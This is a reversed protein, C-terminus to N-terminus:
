FRLLCKIESQLDAIIKDKDEIISKNDEKLDSIIKDKKEVVSKTHEKLDDIIRDKKKILGVHYPNTKIDAMKKSQKLTQEYLDNIVEYLQYKQSERNNSLYYKNDYRKRTNAEGYIHPYKNAIKNFNDM